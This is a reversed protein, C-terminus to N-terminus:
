PAVMVQYFRLNDGSAPLRFTTATGQGTLSQMSTWNPFQQAGQIVYKEGRVSSFTLETQGNIRLPRALLPAPSGGGSATKLPFRTVSAYSWIGPTAPYTVNDVAAARSCRLMGTYAKGAALTGAPILFSRQSGNLAGDMGPLAPTSLIVGSGDTIALQVHDATAGDPLNWSLTFNAAPRILQAEDINSVQPTAPYTNGSLNLSNTRVGNNKTTLQVFYNGSGFTGDLLAQSGFGQVFVQDSGAKVMARSGGGPPAFAAATLSDAAAGTAFATMEFGNARLIPAGVDQENNIRKEVGYGLVDQTNWRTRITMSTRATYASEGLAGPIATTDKVIARWVVLNFTYVNGQSLANAPITVSTSTGNLAGAAGHVTATQFVVAGSDLLIQAYVFDSAPRNLSDWTIKFPQNAYIAQAENFNSVRGPLPYFDNALNLVNTKNGDAANNLTITFNGPPWALGLAGTTDYFGSAELHDGAATLAQTSANPKKVSATTPASAYVFARAEYSQTANQLPAATSTQTFRKGITVGYFQTAAGHCAVSFCACIVGLSIGSLKM